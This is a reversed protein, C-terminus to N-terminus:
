PIKNSESIGGRNPVTLSEKSNTYQVIRIRKEEKPIFDWWHFPYRKSDGIVIEDPSDTFRVESAYEDVFDYYEEDSGGVRGADSDWGISDVQDGNLALLFHEQVDRDSLVPISIQVSDGSSDYSLVIQISESVGRYTMEVHRGPM